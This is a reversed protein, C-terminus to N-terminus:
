FVFVATLLPNESHQKLASVSPLYRVRQIQVDNKRRLRSHMVFCVPFCCSHTVSQQTCRSLCIATAIESLVAVSRTCRIQSILEDRRSIKRITNAQIYASM